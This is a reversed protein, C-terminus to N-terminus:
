LAGISLLDHIAFADTLLFNLRKRIAKYAPLAMISKRDRPHPFWVQIIEGILGTAKSTMVLIKNTMFIVDDLDQSTIFVTTSRSDFSKLNVLATNLVAKESAELDSFVLDLILIDSIIFNLALRAQKNVLTPVQLPSLERYAQLGAATLYQETLAQSEQETLDPTILKIAQYISTAISQYPALLLKIAEPYYFRHNTELKKAGSTPQSFKAQQAIQKILVNSSERSGIIGIIEGQWLNLNFEVGSIFTSKHFSLNPEIRRLEHYRLIKM